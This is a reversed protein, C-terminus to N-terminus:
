KGNRFGKTNVFSYCKWQFVNSTHKRWVWNKGSSYTKYSSISGTYLRINGQILAYQIGTDHMSPGIYTPGPHAWWIHVGEGRSSIMFLVTSIAIYPNISADLSSKKILICADGPPPDSPPSIPVLIICPSQSRYKSPDQDLKVSNMFETFFISPSIPCPIDFELRKM